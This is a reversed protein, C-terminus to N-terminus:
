SGQKKFVKQVALYIGNDKLENETEYNFIM